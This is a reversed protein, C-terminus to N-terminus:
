FSFCSATAALLWGTLPEEGEQAPQRSQRSLGYLLRDSPQQENSTHNIASQSGAPAAAEWLISKVRPQLGPVVSGVVTRQPSTETRLIPCCDPRSPVPHVDWCMYSQRGYLMYLMYGTEGSPAVSTSDCQFSGSVTDM